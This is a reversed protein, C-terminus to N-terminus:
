LAKRLVVRTGRGVQSSVECGDMFAEMVTFGMGSREETTATTFFPQRAQEVDEIGCGSDEISVTLIRGTIEARIEIEGDGEGYAHVVCNTVAESVATKIDNMQEVTPDLRAAFAAVVTRALSENRGEAPLKVYICNEM